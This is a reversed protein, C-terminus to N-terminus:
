VVLLRWFLLLGLLLFWALGELGGAVEWLSNVGLIRIVLGFHGSRSALSGLLWLFCSFLQLFFVGDPFSLLLRSLLLLQLNLVSVSSTKSTLM